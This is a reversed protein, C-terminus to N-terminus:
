VIFDLKDPLAASDPGHVPLCKFAAGAIDEDDLGALNVFEFRNPITWQHLHIHMKARPKNLLIQPLPTQRFTHPYLRIHAASIAVARILKSNRFTSRPLRQYVFSFIIPPEICIVTSNGFSRACCVSGARSATSATAM